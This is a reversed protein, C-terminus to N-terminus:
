RSRELCTRTQVSDLLWATPSSDSVNIYGDDCVSVLVLKVEKDKTIM